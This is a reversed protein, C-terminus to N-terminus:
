ADGFVAKAFQGRLERMMELNDLHEGRDALDPFWEGPDDRYAEIAHNICDLAFELERKM